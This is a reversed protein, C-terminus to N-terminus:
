LEWGQRYKRYLCRNADRDNTIKMYRADYQIKKKSRLAVAALNITETVASANVFSGPSEEDSFFAQTWINNNNQREGRVTTKQGAYADMKVKPIIRPEECRFGALIKGQDGVFMMGETPIEESDAELEEPAFPKMGGDYWILDFPPLHEQAPFNLKIMSSHPFAVDNEIWKCVGNESHRLTTGFAKASVPPTKIDFASFLPFLSYHGMDAVSGGGFEYWGRFVNHTYNPHYPIHPVPGLWLDWNFGEPVPPRDKPIGSFQPWVPRYSWNHIEKLKGIVGEKIWGLVMAYDPRNNWALLHTKLGTKNAMDIVKRAEYMRNAIPKHTVVHKGEQMAAIAITAHLHDPTMIKVVDIDEEKVLLERFDEYSSCGQSSGSDKEKGYYANVYKQGVDRGGFIGKIGEGWTPDDLVKQIGSRIGNASWDLYDTSMKNPDCVAVVRIREHTLLDGMERLGQTGCGINAVTIKDSPAIKGSKALVHSPVISFSIATSATKSIFSRRSLNKHDTM